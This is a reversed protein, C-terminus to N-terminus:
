TRGEAWLYITTLEDTVIIQLQLLSYIRFLITYNKSSPSVQGEQVNSFNRFSVSLTIGWCLHRNNVWPANTSASIHCETTKNCTAWIGLLNVMQYGAALQIKHGSHEAMKPLLNLLLQQWIAGLQNHAHMKMDLIASHCCNQPKCLNKKFRWKEGFCIIEQLYMWCKLEQDPLVASKGLYVRIRSVHNLLM